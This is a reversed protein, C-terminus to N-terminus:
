VAGTKRPATEKLFLAVVFGVILSGITFTFV